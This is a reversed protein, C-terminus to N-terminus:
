FLNDLLGYHGNYFRMIYSTIENTSVLMSLHLVLVLLKSRTSVRHQSTLLDM